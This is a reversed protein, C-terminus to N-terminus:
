DVRGMPLYESLERIEDLNVTDLLYKMPVTGKLLVFLCSSNCSAELKM